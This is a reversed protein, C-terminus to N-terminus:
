RRKASATFRSSRRWSSEFLTGSRKSCPPSSIAWVFVFPVTSPPMSAILSFIPRPPRPPSSSSSYSSLSREPRPERLRPLLRHALEIEVADGAEAVHRLQEPLLVGEQDFGVLQRGHGGLELLARLLDRARVLEGMRG